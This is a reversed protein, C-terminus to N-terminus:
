SHDSVISSMRFPHPWCLCTLLFGLPGRLPNLPSAALSELAWWCWCGFPLHDDQARWAGQKLQPNPWLATIKSHYDLGAIPFCTEKQFPNTPPRMQLATIRIQHNLFIWSIGAASYQLNGCMPRICGVDYFISWKIYPFLRWSWGSPPEPSTKPMGEQFNSTGEPSSVYSNFIAM